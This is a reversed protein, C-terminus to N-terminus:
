KGGRKSKTKEQSIRVLKVTSSVVASGGGQRQQLQDIQSRMRDRADRERQILVQAARREEEMGSAMKNIEEAVARRKQEQRRLYFLLWIILVLSAVGWAAGAVQVWTVALLFTVHSM